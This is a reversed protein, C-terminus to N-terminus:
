CRSLFGSCSSRACIINKFKWEMQAALSTGSDLLIIQTVAARGFVYCSIREEKIRHPRTPAPNAV